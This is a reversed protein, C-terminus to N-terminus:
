NRKEMRHANNKEQEVRQERQRRFYSDIEEKYAVAGANIALADKGSYDKIRLWVLRDAFTDATQNVLKVILQGWYSPEPPPDLEAGAKTALKSNGKARLAAAAAM